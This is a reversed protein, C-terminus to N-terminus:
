GLGPLRDIEHLLLGVHDVRDILPDNDFPRAEDAQAECRGRVSV